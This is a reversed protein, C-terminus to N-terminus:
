RAMLGTVLPAGRDSVTLRSVLDARDRCMFVDCQWSPTM